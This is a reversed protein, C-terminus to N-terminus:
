NGGFAYENIMDVIIDIMLSRTAGATRRIGEEQVDDPYNDQKLCGIHHSTNVYDIAVAISALTKRSPNELSEGCRKIEAMIAAEMRAAIRNAIQKDFGSSGYYRSIRNEMQAVEMFLVRISKASRDFFGCMHALQGLSLPQDSPPLRLTWGKQM